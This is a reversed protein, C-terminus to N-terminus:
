QQTNSSAVPLPMINQIEQRQWCIFIHKILPKRMVRGCKWAVARTTNTSRARHPAPPRSDCSEGKRSMTRSPSFSASGDASTTCARTSGACPAASSMWWRRNPPSAESALPAAGAGPLPRSFVGSRDRVCWRLLVGLLWPLSSASMGRRVDAVDSARAALQIHLNVQFQAM